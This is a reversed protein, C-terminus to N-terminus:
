NHIIFKEQRDEVHSFEYGDPNILPLIYWDISTLGANCSCSM